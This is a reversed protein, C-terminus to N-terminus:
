LHNARRKAELHEAFKDGTSESLREQGGSGIRGVRGAFLDALTQPSQANEGSPESAADGSLHASIWTAPSIGRAAAAERLADYVSDPLELMRSM